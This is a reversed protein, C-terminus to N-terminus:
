LDNLFALLQDQELATLALFADRITRAEGNHAQIAGRLTEGRGDHMYPATHRIGWLPPTRFEGAGAGPEEMGRFADPMVDHLLLDTYAPVPGNAGALEPVHCKTCGLTDFLLEGALVEPDLSGTRQPAALNIMWFAVEDVTEPTLEPDATADSDTLMAFGRGNDPTTVGLEGAMADNVFDALRPVQAKWGFRGIEPQGNVTLHRARGSVGDGNTDTPDERSLIELEGVTDLLGLGFISPTQRQEFVDAQSSYEERGLVYPPRLKSAAQGGPLDQFPGLGLNDKAFRSVNLELGGSGGLVPDQHCGRCSDANLEPAGLGESRHFARDFRARGAKFKELDAPALDTAPGGLEGVGPIDSGTGSSQAGLPLFPLACLPLFRLSAKM